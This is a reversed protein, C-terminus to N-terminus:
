YSATTHPIHIRNTEPSARVHIPVRELVMSVELVGFVMFIWPFGHFFCSFGHFILFFLGPVMFVMSFWSFGLFVLRSGHFVMFVWSFGHFVLRSGDFVM